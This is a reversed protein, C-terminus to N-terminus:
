DGGVSGGRRLEEDCVKFVTEIATFHVAYAFYITHVCCKATVDDRIVSSSM